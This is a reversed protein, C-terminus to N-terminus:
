IKINAQNNALALFLLSSLLFCRLESFQNEIIEPWNRREYPKTPARVDPSLAHTNLLRLNTISVVFAVAEQDIVRLASCIGGADGMSMVETIEIGTNASLNISSTRLSRILADTAKAPIPLHSKLKQMLTTVQKPKDIM